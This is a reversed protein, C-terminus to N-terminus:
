RIRLTFFSAAIPGAGEANIAEVRVRYGLDARVDGRTIVSNKLLTKRTITFNHTTSKLHKLVILKKIGRQNLTLRYRQVPRDGTAGAPAKWSIKYKSATPGGKVTLGRPKLPRQVAGSGSYTFASPLTGEASANAVVVDVVGAARAGTACKIETTSVFTVPACDVGGVRVTSGATFGSGTITIETGGAVPGSAPSVGTVTPTSPTLFTLEISGGEGAASLATAGQGGGTSIVAGSVFTTNVLTGGAGGGGSGGANSKAGAGGGGWGAGGGTTSNGAAVILPPAGPVGGGNPVYDSGNGGSDGDDATGGIGGTGFGGAGGRAPSFTYTGGTEGQGSASVGADGGRGNSGSGGGGGGGAIVADQGALAIGSWGAGTGASFTSSAPGGAAVTLSISSVSSVDLSGVVLAGNGGRNNNIGNNGHGGGGGKVSITATQAGAPVTITETGPTACTVLAGIAPTTTTCGAAAVVTSPAVMGLGACAMAAIVAASTITKKSM